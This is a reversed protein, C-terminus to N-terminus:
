QEAGKEDKKGTMYLGIEEKTVSKADVVASVRGGCLVLIRDCLALLVDLDEGVYLVAVGREKQEDLLEYIAYSTNIDLGRVAYATMLVSPAESIERGVLVKQVNGGSLRSVPTSLDPTVVGLEEKIKVATREPEKKHIFVPAGEDYRKLMMNDTMGMSGVLGMGLRDEPVFSLAIGMERIKRPNMGVIDVREDKGEPYFDIEGSEVEYLGAISELLEKQGSGSIGAVGM